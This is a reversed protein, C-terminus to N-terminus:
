MFKLMKRISFKIYGFIWVLGRVWVWKFRTFINRLCLNCRYIGFIFITSFYLSWMSVSISM